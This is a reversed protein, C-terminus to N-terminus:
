QSQSLIIVAQQDSHFFVIIINPGQDPRGDDLGILPYFVISKSLSFRWTSTNKTVMMPKLLFQSFSYWYTKCM